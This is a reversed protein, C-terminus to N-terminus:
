IGYLDRYLPGDSGDPFQLLSHLQREGYVAESVSLQRILKWQRHRGMLIVFLIMRRGCIFDATEKEFLVRLIHYKAKGDKEPTLAQEM